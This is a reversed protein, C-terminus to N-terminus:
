MSVITQVYSVTNRPGTVRVLIRYYVATSIKLGEESDENNGASSSNGVVVACKAGVRDGAAKCMRQIMFGITNGAADPAGPAATCVGGAVPLFCVGSPSLSAWYANAGLTTPESNSTTATYGNLPISAGLFADSNNAQLWAIAAEVGADASTTASQKFALNGAIISNTDVSRILAVAALSMVVLAILALFLVVGRQKIAYLRTFKLNRNTMFNIGHLKTM